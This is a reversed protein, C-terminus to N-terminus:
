YGLQELREETTPETNTVQAGRSRTGTGRVGGTGQHGNLNVKQGGGNKVIEKARQIVPALRKQAARVLATRSLKKNRLYEERIVQKVIEEGKPTSLEEHQELFRDVAVAVPLESEMVANLTHAFNIRQNHESVAVARAIVDGLRKGNLKVLIEDHDEDTLEFTQPTLAEQLKAMEETMQGAAGAANEVAANADLLADFNVLGRMLELERQTEEWEERSPLGEVDQEANEQHEDTDMDQTESQRQDLTAAASAFGDDELDFDDEITETTTTPQELTAETTAM